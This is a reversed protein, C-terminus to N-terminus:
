GVHQELFDLFRLAYLEPPVCSFAAKKHILSKYRYELMKKYNYPQLFDILGLYVVAKNGKRLGELSSLPADEDGDYLKPALFSRISRAIRRRRPVNSAVPAIGVLLSYDIM